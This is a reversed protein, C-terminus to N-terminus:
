GQSVYVDRIFATMQGQLATNATVVIELNPRPIYGDEASSRKLPFAETEVETLDGRIKGNLYDVIVMAKDEVLKAGTKKNIVSFTAYDGSQLELPLVTGNEKINIDFSLERGKIITFITQEAM